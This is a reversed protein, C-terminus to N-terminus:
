LIDDYEEFSVGCMECIRMMRDPNFVIRSLEESFDTMHTKMSNYDYEFLLGLSCPNEFVGLIWDKRQRRYDLEDCDVEDIRSKLWNLAEYSHNDALGDVAFMEHSKLLRVANENMVVASHNVDNWNKELLHVLYPNQAAKNNSWCISNENQEILRIANRNRNACLEILCWRNLSDFREAIMCIVDDNENRCMSEWDIKDPNERLMAVADPHPNQSLGSWNIKEPNERIWEMAGPNESLAHQWKKDSMSNLFQMRQKIFPYAKTMSCISNWDLYYPDNEFLHLLEPNRSAYYVDIKDIQKEIIEVAFRNTNLSFAHWSIKMKPNEIFYFPRVIFEKKQISGSM